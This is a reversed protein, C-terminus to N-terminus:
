LINSKEQNIYHESIQMELAAVIRDVMEDPILSLDPMDNILVTLGLKNDDVEIKQM